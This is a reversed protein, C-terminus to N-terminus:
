TRRALSYADLHRRASASWDFEAARARGLESLRDRLAPETAVEAMAMALATPDGPPVYRAAGACIERTGPVDAAIVPTGASMAELATLGFGEYLAPHVLAVADAYLEALRERSPHSEVRVGPAEIAASGALVLELPEAAAGRYIAHASLLASLNKRPEADGVYIFLYRNTTPRSGATPLAQGPGHRAVVIRRADVGWLERVDAATTESVCIVAAARRAAARHAVHAYTRYSREFLEPLREFALDHVTLVQPVRAPGYAPLPHHIVDARVRRALRPLEVATWSLDALANRASGAGGGAPPRRRRNWVPVVEAGGLQALAAQLCDLYVATGSYPARRAYTADLLIRM